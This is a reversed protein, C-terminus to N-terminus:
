WTYFIINSHRSKINAVDGATVRESTVWIATDGVHSGAPLGAEDNYYWADQFILKFRSDVDLPRFNNLGYATPRYRIWPRGYGPANADQLGPYFSFWAGFYMHTGNGAGNSILDETYQVSWVVEENQENDHDFVAIPSDLLRHHYANIVRAALDAANSFDSAEAFD